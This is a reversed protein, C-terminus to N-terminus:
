VESVELRAQRRHLRCSGKYAHGVVDEMPPIPKTIPAWDKGDWQQITVAGKGEHDACSGIIPAFLGTLGLEAIRADDLKIRELGKRVDAGTVNKKGTLKQAEHIAEAVVGCRHAM